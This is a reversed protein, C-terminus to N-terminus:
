REIGWESISREAREKTDTSIAVVDVGKQAFDDLRRDLDRIYTKCIPCHLGRYAVIMTFSRPRRDALNFRGGGLLPLDLAPGNRRPKIAMLASRGDDAMTPM